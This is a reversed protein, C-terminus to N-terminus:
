KNDYRILEILGNRLENVREALSETEEDSAGSQITQAIEAWEDLGCQLLTGRITHSAIRLANHDKAQIASEAEHVSKSISRCAAGLIQRLQNEDLPTSAQLHGMMEDVTVQRPTAPTDNEPLNQGAQFNKTQDEKSPETGSFMAWMAAALQESQFPKTLYTDMGTNICRNRDEGMAHATLAIIRQHGNVLRSHLRDALDGPLARPPEESKELCRIIATAELGDMEPMQVDMLIIDFSQSGLKQLADLGDVATIIMHDKELVMKVLDRNVQNDDVVLIKFGKLSNKTRDGIPQTVIASQKESCRNLTIVFYFTSGIGEKSEVWIRGNMLSTLQKCIALGLGTGGYKRAYSNDTQEFINFVTLLSESSIGLGSDKVSFLLGIAKNDNELPNLGIDIKIGGTQTFKISNGVLNFIIQRIRLEDGVFAEPVNDDILYTLSLGKEAAGVNLVSLVSEMVSSLSFPHENLQLQGAEIKSFDLIDNLIGLLNDASTKVTKLCLIRKEDVGTNLAMQTMGIIASMPTRIEHSMNALFSSEARNAAEASDKAQQLEARQTQLSDVAHNFAQSLLGIEDNHVIELKKDYNGKSVRKFAHLLVEIPRVLSRQMIYAVALAILLSSLLFVGLTYKIKTARTALKQGQYAMQESVHDVAEDTTEVIDHATRIAITRMQLEASGGEFGAGIEGKFGSLAQRYERALKIIDEVYDQDIAENM